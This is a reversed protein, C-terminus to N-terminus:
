AYTLLCIWLCVLHVLFVNLMDGYNSNGNNGEPKTVNGNSETDNGVPLTVNGNPETIPETVNGNPETIQETVNGNPETIPETVPETTDPKTVNGNPKIIDTKLNKCAHIVEQFYFNCKDDTNCM